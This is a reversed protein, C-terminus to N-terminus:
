ECRRPPTPTPISNSFITPPPSLRRKTPRPRRIRWGFRCIIPASSRPQRRHEKDRRRWLKASRRSIPNQRTSPLSPWRWGRKPFARAERFITFSSKFLRHPKRRERRRRRTGEELLLEGQVAQKAPDSSIKRYDAAFEQARDLRLWVLAANFLADDSLDPSHKALQEYIPAATELRGARYNAEATLGEVQALFAPATNQVRAAEAASIAAEWEGKALHLRALELNAEGLSPLRVPSDRLQTLLECRRTGIAPVCRAGPWIGSRSRRGRSPRIACGATWNTRRRSANWRTFSTSNRLSRPCHRTTLTIISSNRSRTM